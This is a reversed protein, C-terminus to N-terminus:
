NGGNPSRALSEIDSHDSTGTLIEIRQTLGAGPPRHVGKPGAMADVLYQSHDVAAFGVLRMSSNHM